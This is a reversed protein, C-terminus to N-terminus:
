LLGTHRLVFLEIGSNHIQCHSFSDTAKVQEDTTLVMTPVHVCVYEQIYLCIYENLAANVLFIFM